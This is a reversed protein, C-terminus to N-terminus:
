LDIIGRRIAIAVAHTRDNAGLKSLITKMHCKVTEETIGMERAVQKNSNGQGVLRLVERERPAVDREDFRHALAMAAEAALYRQGHHTARIAAHLETRLSAKLLYGTAGAKLARAIHGDGDFTTVVLIHTEPSVSKIAEIADFGSLIPMQLDMLVVDPRLAACLDLAERGNAAEGVVAIDAHGALLSVLGYRLLPHDDAIVITIPAFARQEREQRKIEGNESSTQM